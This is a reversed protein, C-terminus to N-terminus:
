SSAGVLPFLGQDQELADIRDGAAVLGFSNAEYRQGDFRLAKVYNNWQENSRIVITESCVADGMQTHM